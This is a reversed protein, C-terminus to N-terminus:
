ENYRQLRLNIIILVGENIKMPMKTTGSIAKKIQSIRWSLLFPPIPSM